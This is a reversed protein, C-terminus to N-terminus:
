PARCASWLGSGTARATRQAQEFEPQWAYSASGYQRQYAFGGTVSELNFLRLTGDPLERWVYALTRDYRDLRGQSDDYELTVTAGDLLDKAFDSAEPGFCEVDSGPKVTEPTNIGIMRVSVSQGDLFVRVTDGDVVRDVTVDEITPGRPVLGADTSPVAGVRNSPGCGALLAFGAVVAPVVWAKLM